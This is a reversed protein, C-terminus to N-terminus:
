PKFRKRAILRTGRKPFSQIELDDMLRRVSELGVGLGDAVVRWRWAGALTLGLTLLAGLALTTADLSRVGEVFPGTGTQWLVVALVAAGLAPRWLRKVHRNM